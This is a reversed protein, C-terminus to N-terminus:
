EDLCLLHKVQAVNLGKYLGGIINMTEMSQTSLDSMNLFEGNHRLYLTRKDKYLVLLDTSIPNNGANLQVIGLVNGVYNQDTSLIKRRKQLAEREQIAM